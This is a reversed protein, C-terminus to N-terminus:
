GKEKEKIDSIDSVHPLTLNSCYRDPITSQIVLGDPVSSFSTKDVYYYNGKRIAEYDAIGYPIKKVERDGPDGM